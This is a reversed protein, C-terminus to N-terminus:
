VFPAPIAQKTMKALRGTCGLTTELVERKLIGFHWIKGQVNQSSALIFLVKRHQAICTHAPAHQNIAVTPLSLPGPPPLFLLNLM